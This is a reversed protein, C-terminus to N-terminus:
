KHFSFYKSAKIADAAAEEPTVTYHQNDFFVGVSDCDSVIYGNLGWAGRITDYLLRPNACTPIGNVQNYSCTVSAVKGQMVCELIFPYMIKEWLSICSWLKLIRGGSRGSLHTDHLSQSMGSQHMLGFLSFWFGGGVSSCSRSSSSSSPLSCCSGGGRVNGGGLGEPEKLIVYDDKPDEIM